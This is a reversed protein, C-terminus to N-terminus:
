LSLTRLKGSSEVDLDRWNFLNRTDIGLQKALEEKTLIPPKLKGIRHKLKKLEEKFPNSKKRSISAIAIDKLREYDDLSKVKEGEAFMGLKGIKNEIIPFSGGFSRHKAYNRKHSKRYDNYINELNKKRIYVFRGSQKSKRTYMHLMGLARDVVIYEHFKYFKTLNFIFFHRKKRCTMLMRILDKSTEKYWDNSLFDLSPEDWIIIKEQTTTAFDIMSQLRFFMNIDRKTKYKVYYAIAESSNTKGEGEDGEVILLADKRSVKNTCRQIMLDLKRVLKKELSYELDTVLSSGDCVTM